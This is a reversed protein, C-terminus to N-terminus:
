SHLLSDWHAESSLSVRCDPQAAFEMDLPPALYTQEKHVTEFIARPLMGSKTNSAALKRRHRDDSQMPFVAEAFIQSPTMGHVGAIYIAGM